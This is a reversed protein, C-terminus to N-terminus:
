EDIEEKDAFNCDECTKLKCCYCSDEYYPSNPEHMREYEIDGYLM